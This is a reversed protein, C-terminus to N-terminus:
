NNFGTSITLAKWTKLDNQLYDIKTQAVNYADEGLLLNLPPNEALSVEIIAEAAKEPDGPQQEHIQNQHANQSDRINQYADITNKPTVLSGSALFNTRFYGPEVITVKIGFPKVEAHLSESLGNVAFKTACYIGFGPFAGSIGAISSINFVHGSQKERLYPLAKRIVNLSGFVNVEFNDRAEQDTTEELGGLMGYGANNVVVDLQGFTSITTEIAKQVSEESTLDVALPLFSEDEPKVEKVLDALNRSTAAVKYGKSLLKQVLVLGLGKSAGTVFWVKQNDM